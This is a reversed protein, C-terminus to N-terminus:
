NFTFVSKSAGLECQNFIMTGNVTNVSLVGEKNVSFYMDEYFMNLELIRLDEGGQREMVLSPKNVDHTKITIKSGVFEIDNEGLISEFVNKKIRSTLTGNQSYFEASIRYPSNAAEPPMFKILKKGKVELLTNETSFVSNGIHMKPDNPPLELDDYSMGNQFAWPSKMAEKVRGKSMTGKTVKAHCTPCLLTMCSANHHKAEHFEPEVHEYEVIANGCIVCGYGSNKRILSKVSTPIHRPLGHKNENAM